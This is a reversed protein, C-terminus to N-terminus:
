LYRSFNSVQCSPQSWCRAGARKVAQAATWYTDIIPMRATLHAAEIRSPQRGTLAACAIGDM